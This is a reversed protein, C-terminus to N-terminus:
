VDCIGWNCLELQRPTTWVPLLSIELNEFVRNQNTLKSLVLSPTHMVLVLLEVLSLVFSLLLVLTQFLSVM